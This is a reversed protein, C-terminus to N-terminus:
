RHSDRRFVSLIRTLVSKSQLKKGFDLWAKAALPMSDSQLDYSGKFATYDEKFVIEGMRESTCESFDIARFKETYMNIREEFVRIGGAVVVMGSSVANHNHKILELNNGGSTIFQVCLLVRHPSFTVAVLNVFSPYRPLFGHIDRGLGYEGPPITKWTSLRPTPRLYSKVLSSSKKANSRTTSTDNPGLPIAIKGREHLLHGVRMHFPPLLMTVLDPVAMEILPTVLTERHFCFVVEVLDNAVHLPVGQTCVEHLSRFRPTPRTQVTHLAFVRRKGDERRPRQRAGGIPQLNDVLRLRFHRRQTAADIATPGEAIRVPNRVRGLSQPQFPRNPGTSPRLFLRLSAV